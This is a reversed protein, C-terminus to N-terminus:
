IYVERRHCPGTPGGQHTGTSGMPDGPHQEPKTTRHEHEHRGAQRAGYRATNRPDHPQHTQTATSLRATLITLAARGTSQHRCTRDPTAPQARRLVDTGAPLPDADGLTAPKHSKQTGRNLNRLVSIVPLSAAGRESRSVTLKRRPTHGEYWKRLNCTCFGGWADWANLKGPPPTRRDGRHVYGKIRAKSPLM